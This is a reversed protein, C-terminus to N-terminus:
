LRVECALWLSRQLRAFQGIGDADYGPTAVTLFVLVPPRTKPPDYDPQISFLARLGTAAAKVREGM